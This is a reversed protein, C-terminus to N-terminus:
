DGPSDLPATWSITRPGPDERSIAARKIELAAADVRGVYVMAVVSESGAVGLGSLVVPHRSYPGSLWVAGYGLAGAALVIQHASSGAALLQEDEPVAMGSKPTAIVAIILPARMPKSRAAALASEPANPDDAVVAAAFLDALRERAEGEITIFRWPTLNGHDPGSMGAKLIQHREGVTPAEDTFANTPASLRDILANINM